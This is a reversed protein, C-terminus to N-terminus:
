SKYPGSPHHMAASGLCWHGQVPSPANKGTGAQPKAIRSAAQQCENHYQQTPQAASATHNLLVRSCETEPTRTNLHQVVWEKSYTPAALVALLRCFHHTSPQPVHLAPKDLQLNARICLTVPQPPLPHTSGAPCTSRSEASKSQNIGQMVVGFRLASQHVNAKTCVHRYYCICGGVVAFIGNCNQKLWHLPRPVHM